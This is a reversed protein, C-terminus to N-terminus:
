QLVCKLQTNVTKSIKNSVIFPIEIKFDDTNLDFNTIIEIGAETKRIQAKINIKKAQGNLVIKGKIQYEKAITDINKLDLKEIKGKFTARAYKSSEMYNENFHTQMLTRKFQFQKILATCNFENKKPELVCFVKTNTAKVEEFFPISAEFNIIGTHTMMKQQAPSTYSIIIFVILTFNKM